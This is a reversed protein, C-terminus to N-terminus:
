DHCDRDTVWHSFDDGYLNPMPICPSYPVMPTSIPPSLHHLKSTAQIPQLPPSFNSFVNAIQPGPSSSTLWPGPSFIVANGAGAGYCFPTTPSSTSVVVNEQPNPEDQPNEDGSVSEDVEELCFLLDSNDAVTLTTTVPSTTTNSTFDQLQSSVEMVVPNEMKVIKM